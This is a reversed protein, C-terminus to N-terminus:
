EFYEKFTIPLHKIIDNTIMGRGKKEFAKKNSLRLLGCASYCAELKKQHDLGSM